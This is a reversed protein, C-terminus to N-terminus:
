PLVSNKGKGPPPGKPPEPAAPPTPTTVPKSGGGRVVGETAAKATDSAQEPLPVSTSGGSGVGNGSGGSNGNGVGNGNGGSNGHESGSSGGGKASESRGRSESRSSGGTTSFDDSVSSDTSDDSDSAPKSTDSGAPVEALDGTSEGPVSPASEEPAAEASGGDHRLSSAAGSGVAMGKLSTRSLESEVVHRAGIRGSDVSLAVLPGQAGMVASVGSGSPRYEAHDAHFSHVALNGGAVTALTAAAAVGGMKVEGALVGILQRPGNLLLAWLAVPRYGTYYGRFARVAAPDLQTGSEAALLTLADKHRRASRYARTSTVADFTDAVAIIRAGLPIEKGELRAPYGKGDLREHHHRVMKTLEEDGLASVMEAGIRSHQQITRFEADTLKGPKNIISVPLDVKGVDHVAAATRIKAVEERSLGMRKAIVTAHRAVRRSHGHTDPYRAELAASLQKLLRVREAAELESPDGASKDDVLSEELGLLGIANALQRELRWRRFWGWIMLDAFLVGESHPRSAWITSGLYSALISLIVGAAVLLLFSTILGAASLGSVVLIPVAVVWFTALLVLPLRRAFM